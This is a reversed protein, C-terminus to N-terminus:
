WFKYKRVQVQYLLGAGAALLGYKLISFDLGLTYKAYDTRTAFFITTAIMSLTFLGSLRHYKYIQRGRDASGLIREPFWYMVIGLSANGLITLFTFAGLVAHWTMFHGEGYRRKTYLIFGSGTVFMLTSLLNFIGHLKGALTKSRASEPTPQVFLVAQSLLVLGAANSLPHGSFLVMKNTFVAYYIRALVTFVGLQVLVAAKSSNARRAIQKFVTSESTEEEKGTEHPNYEKKEKVKAKDGM